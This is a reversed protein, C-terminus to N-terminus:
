KCAKTFLLIVIENTNAEEYKQQRSINWHGTSLMWKNWKTECWSNDTASQAVTLQHWLSLSLAVELFFYVDCNIKVNLFGCSSTDNTLLLTCSTIWVGKNWQYELMIFHYSTIENVCCICDFLVFGHAYKMPYMTYQPFCLHYWINSMICRLHWRPRNGLYWPKTTKRRDCNPLNWRAVTFVLAVM